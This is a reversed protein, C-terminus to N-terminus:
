IGRKGITRDFCCQQQDNSEYHRIIFLQINDYGEGTGRLRKDDMKRYHVVDIHTRYVSNVNRMRPHSRLPIARYIGTVAVRDGPQVKDVLDNHAYLQVNHPTQGAPMDDACNCVFYM